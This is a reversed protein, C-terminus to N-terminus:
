TNEQSKKLRETIKNRILNSIEPNDPYSKDIAEFAKELDEEDLVHYSEFDGGLANRVNNMLIDTSKEVRTMEPEGSFLKKIIGYLEEEAETYDLYQNLYSIIEENTLTNRESWDIGKMACCFDLMGEILEVSEKHQKYSKLDIVKSM